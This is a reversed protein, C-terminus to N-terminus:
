IPCGANKCANCALSDPKGCTKCPGCLNLEMKPITFNENEKYPLITFETGFGADFASKNGATMYAYYKFGIIGFVILLLLVVIFVINSNIGLIKAM